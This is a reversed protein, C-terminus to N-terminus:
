RAAKDIAVTLQRHLEKAADLPLRVSEEIGNPRLVSVELAFTGGITGTSVYLLDPHERNTRYRGGTTLVEFDSMEPSVGDEKGKSKKKM